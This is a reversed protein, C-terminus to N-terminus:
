VDIHYSKEVEGTNIKDCWQALDSNKIRASDEKYIFFSSSRMFNYGRERYYEIYSETAKLITNWDYNYNDFFWNFRLELDRSPSKALKGSPLTLSPWMSRYVEVNRSFDLSVHGEFIKSKRLKETGKGKLDIWGKTILELEHRDNYFLSPVEKGQLM